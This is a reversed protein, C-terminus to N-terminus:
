QKEGGDDQERRQRRRGLAGPFGLVVDFDDDAGGGSGTPKVWTSTAAAGPNIGTHTSAFTTTDDSIVVHTVLSKVADRIATEGQDLIAPM